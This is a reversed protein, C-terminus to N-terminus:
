FFHSKHKVNVIYVGSRRWQRKEPIKIRLKLCIECRKRTNSNSVKFLNINERFCRSFGAEQLMEITMSEDFM